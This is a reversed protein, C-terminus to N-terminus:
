VHNSLLKTVHCSLFEYIEQKHILNFIFEQPYISRNCITQTSLTQFITSDFHFNLKSLSLDYFWSSKSHMSHLQNNEYAEKLLRDPLFDIDLHGYHQKMFKYIEPRENYWFERLEDPIPYKYWLSPLYRFLIVETMKGNIKLSTEIGESPLYPMTFVLHNLSDAIKGIIVPLYVAVFSLGGVNPVNNKVVDYAWDTIALFYIWPRMYPNITLFMNLLNRFQLLAMYNILLAFIFERTMELVTIDLCINGHIQIWESVKDPLFFAEKSNPVYFNYYGQELNEYFTREQPTTHPVLGFMVESINDPVREPPMRRAFSPLYKESQTVEMGLSNDPYGLIKALGRIALTIPFGLLALFNSILIKLRM